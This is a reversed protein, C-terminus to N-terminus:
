VQEGFFRCLFRFLQPSLGVIAQRIEAPPVDVIQGREVSGASEDFAQISVEIRGGPGERPARTIVLTVHATKVPQAQRLSGRLQSGIRRAGPPSADAGRGCM